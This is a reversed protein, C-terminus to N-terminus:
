SVCIVQCQRRLAHNFAPVVAWGWINRKYNCKRTYTDLTYCVWCTHLESNAPILETKEVMHKESNLNLDAPKAALVRAQWAMENTGPQLESTKSTFM